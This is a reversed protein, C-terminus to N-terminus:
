EHLKRAIEANLIECDALKKQLGTESFLQIQHQKLTEIQDPRVRIAPTGTASGSGRTKASRCTLGVKALPWKAM